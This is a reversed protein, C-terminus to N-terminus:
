GEDEKGSEGLNKKYESKVGIQLVNNEFLVGNNKTLFKAFGEESGETLSQPPAHLGPAAQEPLGGSFIPDDLM